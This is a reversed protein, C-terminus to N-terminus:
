RARDSAALARLKEFGESWGDHHLQLREDTAFPGQELHVKTAGDRDQLTLTAVTEQDGPAPEEWIFTYAVRNPPDLETFEGRLHFPDGEPPQMKIRYAGGVRLDAEIAPVSFGNPGWWKELEAPGTLLEFVRAQPAPIEATLDLTLSDKGSAM